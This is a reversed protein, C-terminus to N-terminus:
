KTNPAISALIPGAKCFYNGAPLKDYHRGYLWAKTIVPKDHQCKYYKKFHNELWSVKWEYAKTYYDTVLSNRPAMHGKIIATSVSKM